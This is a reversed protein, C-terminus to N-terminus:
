NKKLQFLATRSQLASVAVSNSQVSDVAGQYTLSSIAFSLELEATAVALEAQNQLALADFYDAEANAHEAASLQQLAFMRNAHSREAAAYIVNDKALM